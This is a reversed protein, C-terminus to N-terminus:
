AQLVAESLIVITTKYAFHVVVLLKRVCDDVPLFLRRNLNERNGVAM